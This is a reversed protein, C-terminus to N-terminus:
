RDVALVIVLLEGGGVHQVTRLKAIAELDAASNLPHALAHRQRANM